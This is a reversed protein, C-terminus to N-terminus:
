KLLILKKTSSFDEAQLTYFYVGSPYNTGDFQVQYAGASKKGNVLVTVEKGLIDYVILKVYNTVPLQFKIITKPNFPNPYNQSLSYTKPIESPENQLGVISITDTYIQTNQIVTPPNLSQVGGAVVYKGIGNLYKVSGAQPSSVPIPVVPQQTWTNNGPSYVYCDVGIQVMYGGAQIIGKRGWPASEFGWRSTGPYPTVFAWTILSRDAQDIIGKLTSNSFPGFYTSGGGVYIITDGSITCSGICLANPLSTALRWSNSQSNYMYVTNIATSGGASFGGLSYILSDQYSIAKNGALVQPLSARSTWSNSRIDYKYVTSVESAFFSTTMGGIEYISDKLAVCGCHFVNAPLIARQIWADTNVNYMQTSNTITGAYDHSGGIVFLWGTDNKMYSAGGGDMVAVPM